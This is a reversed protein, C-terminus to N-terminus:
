SALLSFLDAQGTEKYEELSKRRAKRRKWAANQVTPEPSVPKEVDLIEVPIQPDPTEPVPSQIVPETREKAQEAKDNHVAMRKFAASLDEVSDKIGHVLDKALLAMMDDSQSLAALGEESFGSGEIVMAASLKSAMLRMTRQQMTHAYYLLYVEIKPATQNIRYSRRSAQRLVFLNFATNYFILTTFANLDLGTQLLAPNVILVNTGEAVQNDVWKERRATPVRRDLIKVRYGAQTLLTHLKTQTDLRTWATYIIVREGAQVKKEVLELVKRDKDWVSGIDGVRPPIVLPDGSFPDCVIPQGYPQDPYASLLNLYSSLICNAKRRDSRLIKKLNAEMAQYAKAVDEAMSCSVPIEEYDPLEKGMDALTLFVTHELLFRAYVLPSVGPLSKERVRRTKNKSSSNYISDNTIEYVTEMIGYQECFSRPSDYKQGDQIMLYPKLRFLLYFMGKCYGNILTATMGITKRSVSAIEAMAEGQASEGTYEHLEDIILCDVHGIHRKIYASLPYRRYAGATPYIGDPQRAIEWIQRRIFEDKCRSYHQMIFKRHIFGYGGIRVWENKEPSLVDPNIVSWLSGGCEPCKHNNTREVQFFFSDATELARTEGDFVPMTLEAGCDPCCFAKKVPNWSVAPYRMPGNKAKEKSLVCFVHKDESRYINHLKDLDSLSSAAKAVCNPVTEYLERVWKETIHSPCIVVNFSRALGQARISAYAAASGVKSKGTGCEAVVFALDNKKLQRVVAESAALQADFLVYGAHSKVYRNVEELHSSAPEKGPDYLPPFRDKIREAIQVGFAKLYDSFGNMGTLAGSLGPTSGPIRISGNKLGDELVAAIEKEEASVTMHWASFPQGFSQVQLPQLLSRNKLERLFYAQFEPILPVSLKQDLARFLEDDSRSFFYLNRNPQM